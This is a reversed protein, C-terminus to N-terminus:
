DLQEEIDYSACASLPQSSRHQAVVVEAVWGAALFLFGALSLVAAFIAWEMRSYLVFCLVGTVAGAVLLPLAVIGFGHAPREAFRTILTVTILDLFGKFLRELGYKSRGHKRPHHVVEIESIKFGRAAALVPLFRHMEGHLCLSPLVESRFAKFGCNIDHLKLGTVEAVTYNFIRSAIVKNIPDHRRKKWGVVLDSGETLKELFRPIERPDDQLDGDMTVVVKGRVVAFAAALAATKGFNRRLRLVRVRGPEHLTQLREWTEDTSGDDVFIIEHPGELVTRLLSTLEV